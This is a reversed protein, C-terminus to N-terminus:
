ELLAPFLHNPGGLSFNHVHKQFLTFSDNFSFIRAGPEKNLMFEPSLLMQYVHVQRDFTRAPRQEKFISKPRYLVQM